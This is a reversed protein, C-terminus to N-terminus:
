NGIGVEKKIVEKLKALTLENAQYMLELQSIQAAMQGAAEGKVQSEKLVKILAASVFLDAELDVVKEELRALVKSDMVRVEKQHANKESEMKLM